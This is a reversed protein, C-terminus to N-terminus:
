NGSAPGSNNAPVGTSAPTEVYGKIRIVTTPENVANSTITVSKNIAGVKNTDYKVKIVASKGPAIPEKPYSPVTCSCSGKAKSIILPASGTNTVVFEVVGNDGKKIKGYDHIDKNVSIAPGQIADQANAASAMGVLFLACLIITNKMM